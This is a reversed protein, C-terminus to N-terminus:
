KEKLILDCVERVAGMGGNFKTVYDAKDKVFDHADATAIGVGAHKICLIDNIDDGVYAAQDSVLNKSQILSKLISLKDNDTPVGRYCEIGLKQCRVSVVKNIEKSIVLVEIGAQKLMEIGLSDRRNCIVSEQGNESFFVFAGLTLTGDFDLALLKINKFNIDSKIYIKSDNKKM